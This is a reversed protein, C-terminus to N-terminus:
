SPDNGLRKNLWNALTASAPVMLMLVMPMRNRVAGTIHFEYLAFIIAFILAFLLYDKYQSIVARGGALVLLILAIVFAMDLTSLTMGAMDHASFIPLPSCVFQLILFPMDKLVDGYTQWYVNGYTQPGLEVLYDNRLNALAEPAVPNGVIFFRLFLWAGTLIAAMTGLRLWVPTQKRWVIVLITAPLLAVFLQMRLLVLMLAGVLLYTIQGRDTARVVGTMYIGVALLIYAERLPVSLYMFAAPWVLLLLAIIFQQTEKRDNKLARSGAIFFQMGVLYFLINFFTFIVPSNLCLIGIGITLYYIAMVNVSTTEPYLGSTIMYSYLGTDPMFPMFDLLSDAIIGACYLLFIFMTIRTTRASLGFGIRGIRDILYSFFLIYILYILYDYWFIELLYDKM